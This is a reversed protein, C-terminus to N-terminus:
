PNEGLSGHNWMIIYRFFVNHKDVIDEMMWIIESYSNDNSSDDKIRLCVMGMVMDVVCFGHVVIHVDHCFLM